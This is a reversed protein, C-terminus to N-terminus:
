RRVGVARAVLEPRSHAGTKAFAAKLHDQVTHQSVHMSSALAATDAGVLLGHLVETERVSLGSARAFLDARDASPTPEFTVAIGAAAHDVRAARVTLWRGHALHVRASPEHDDVGAERARLQAGVNLAAAPVVPAPAAEEPSPLLTRLVADTAPTRALPALDSSLLMVGPGATGTADDEGAPTPAADFTAAVSRRLGRTLPGSLATLLDVDERRFRGGTRWLDLFAWCGYADRLALSMVDTVGYQRRIDDWPEHVLRALVPALTVM